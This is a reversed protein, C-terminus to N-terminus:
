VIARARHLRPSAINAIQKGKIHYPILQPGSSPYKGYANIRIRGHLYTAIRQKHIKGALIKDCIDVAIDQGLKWGAEIM